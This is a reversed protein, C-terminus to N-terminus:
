TASGGEYRVRISQWRCNEIVLTAIAVPVGNQYLTDSKRSEVSCAMRWQDRRQYGPETILDCGTLILVIGSLPILMAIKRYGTAIENRTAAIWRRVARPCKFNTARVETEAIEEDTDARQAELAVDHPSFQMAIQRARARLHIERMGAIAAELFVGDADGAITFLEIDEYVRELSSPTRPGSRLRRLDAKYKGAPLRRHVDPAVCNYAAAALDKMSRPRRWPERGHDATAAPASNADM